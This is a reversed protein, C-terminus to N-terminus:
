VSRGNEILIATVEEESLNTINALLAISIGNDFGNLVVEILKQQEGEMRGEMRSELKVSEIHKSTLRVNKLYDTYEKKVTTDMKELNLKKAVEKLGKAKYNAPLETYKLFYIWEDLRTKILNNFISVKILYVEPYIEGPYDRGFSQKQAHSLELRDQAHIGRFDMQGHYVYDYGRGLNFYLINISYVKKVNEYDMGENIHETIIKSASYLIRHFYDLEDYFQIEIFILEDKHNQCLIDVQNFKDDEREKNTQSEIISSVRIDEQLLESLFGELIDFNAKQRLLKKIAWDFSVM